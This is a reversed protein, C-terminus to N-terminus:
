YVGESFAEKGLNLTGALRQAAKEKLGPAVHSYIDLTTTIRNHGLLEQVVKPHEGLELLTTAYTRRMDHLRAPPLGAKQLLRKYHKYFGDPDLPEGTERCFVLGNDRYCEGLALREEAQRRKHRKLEAVVQPPLPVTRRSQKTKPESFELGERTRVLARRVAVTGKELDIDSWKLGLLEGRRM